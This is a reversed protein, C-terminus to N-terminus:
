WLNEALLAKPWWHVNINDLALQKSHWIQGWRSLVIFYSAHSHSCLLAPPIGLNMMYTDDVVCHCSVCIYNHGGIYYHKDDSAYEEYRFCLCLSFDQLFRLCLILAPWTSYAVCSVLNEPNVSVLPVTFGFYSSWGEYVSLFLFIHGEIDGVIVCMMGLTFNVRM